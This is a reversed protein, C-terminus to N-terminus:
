WHKSCRNNLYYAKIIVNGHKRCIHIIIYFIIYGSIYRHSSYHFQLQTIISLFHPFRLNPSDWLLDILNLPLYIYERITINQRWIWVDFFLLAVFLKFILLCVYSTINSTLFWYKIISKKISLFNGWNAVLM